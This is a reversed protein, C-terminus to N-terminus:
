AGARRCVSRAPGPPALPDLSGRHGGWQRGTGRGPRNAVPARALRARAAAWSRVRRRRSPPSSRPMRGRSETTQLARHFSCRGQHLDVVCFAALALTISHAVTFAGVLLPHSLVNKGFAVCSSCGPVEQFLVLLPQGSRLARLSGPPWCSRCRWRGALESGSSRWQGRRVFQLLAM